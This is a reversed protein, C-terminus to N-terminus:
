KYSMYVFKLSPLEAINFLEITCASWRKVDAGSSVSPNSRAYFIHQQLFAACLTPTSHTANRECPPILKRFRTGNGQLSRRVSCEPNHMNNAHTCGKAMRAARARRSRADGFRLRAADRGFSWSSWLSWSTRGCQVSDCRVAAAVVVVVVDVARRRPLVRRRKITERADMADHWM